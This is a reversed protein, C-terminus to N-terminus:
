RSTKASSPSRSAVEDDAGFLAASVPISEMVGAVFALTGDFPVDKTADTPGIKMRVRITTFRSM